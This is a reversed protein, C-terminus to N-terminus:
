RYDFLFAARCTVFPARFSILAVVALRSPEVTTRSLSALRWWTKGNRNGILGGGTCDRPILEIGPEGNYRVGGATLLVDAANRRPCEFPGPRDVSVRAIRGAGPYIFVHAYGRSVSAVM